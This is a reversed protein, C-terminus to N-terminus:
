SRRSTIEFETWHCSFLKVETKKKIYLSYYFLPLSYYYFYLSYYYLPLSYYYFYLSYYYFPIDEVRQPCTIARGGPSSGAVIIRAKCAARRLASTVAVAIAMLLELHEQNPVSCDPRRRAVIKLEPQAMGRRSSARLAFVGCAVSWRLTHIYTCRSVAGHESTNAMLDNIRHRVKENRPQGTTVEMYVIREDRLRTVVVERGLGEDWGDLNYKTGPRGILRFCM